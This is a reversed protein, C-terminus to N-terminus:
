NNILVLVFSVLRYNIPCQKLVKPVSRMGKLPTKMISPVGGGPIGKEGFLAM